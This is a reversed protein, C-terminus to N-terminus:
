RPAPLAHPAVSPMPDRNGGPPHDPKLVAAARAANGAAHHPLLQDNAAHAADPHKAAGNAASLAVSHGTSLYSPAANATHAANSACRRQDEGHLSACSPRVRSIRADKRYNCCGKILPKNMVTNVSRM